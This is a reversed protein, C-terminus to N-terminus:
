EIKLTELILKILNAPELNSQIWSQNEKTAINIQMSWLYSGLKNKKNM